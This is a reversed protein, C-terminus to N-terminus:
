QCFPWDCKFMLRRDEEGIQQDIRKLVDVAAKRRQRRYRWATKWHNFYIRAVGLPVKKNLIILLLGTLSADGM